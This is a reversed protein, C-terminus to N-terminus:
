YRSITPNITPQVDESTEKLEMRSQGLEKISVPQQLYSSGQKLCGQIKLPLNEMKVWSSRGDAWLVQNNFSTLSTIIM